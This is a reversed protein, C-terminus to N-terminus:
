VNGRVGKGENEKTRFEVIKRILEVPLDVSHLFQITGHGSQKFERLEDKFQSFVKMSAPYFGIHDKFAGFYVLRGKYFFAPMDYSIKGEASPAVDQIVKCILHLRERIEDPHKQIYEDISAFKAKQKM